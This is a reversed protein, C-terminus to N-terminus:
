FLLLFLHGIRRSSLKVQETIRRSNGKPISFTSRADKVDDFGHHTQQPDFGESELRVYNPREGKQEVSSSSSSDEDLTYTNRRGQDAYNKLPRSSPFLVYTSSKLPDVGISHGISQSPDILATCHELDDQEDDSTDLEIPEGESRNSNFMPRHALEKALENM